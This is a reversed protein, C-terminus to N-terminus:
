IKKFLEDVRVACKFMKVLKILLVDKNSGACKLNVDLVLLPGM